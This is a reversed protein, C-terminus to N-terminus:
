DVYQGSRDTAVKQFEHDSITLYRYKCYHRLGFKDKEREDAAFQRQRQRVDHVYSYFRQHLSAPLSFGPQCCPIKQRRDTLFPHLQLWACGVIEGSDQNTAKLIVAESKAAFAQGYHFRGVEIHNDINNCGQQFSRCSLPDLISVQAHIYALNGLDTESAFTVQFLEDTSVDSSAQQRAKFADSAVSNGIEPVPDRPENQVLPSQWSSTLGYASPHSSRSVSELGWNLPFGQPMGFSGDSRRFNSSLTTPQLPQRFSTSPGAPILSQDSTFPVWSALPTAPNWTSSSASSTDTPENVSRSSPSRLSPEGHLTAPGSSKALTSNTQQDSDTNTRQGGTFAADTAAPLHYSAHNYM